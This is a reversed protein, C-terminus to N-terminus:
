DATAKSKKGCIIRCDRTRFPLRHTNTCSPVVIFVTRMHETELYEDEKVIGVLSKTMLNGQNRREIGAVAQKTTTYDNLRIKLDDETRAVLEMVASEIEELTDGSSFKAEDWEFNHLYKPLEVFEVLPVIDPKKSLDRYQRLLRDVVQEIAHDHKTLTDSLAMQVHLLCM